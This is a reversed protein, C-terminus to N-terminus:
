GREGVCCGVLVGMLSLMVVRAWGVLLSPEDAVDDLVGAVVRWALDVSVPEVLVAVGVAGLDDAGLDLQGARRRGVRPPRRCWISKMRSGVRYVHWGPPMAM